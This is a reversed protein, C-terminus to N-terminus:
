PLDVECRGAEAYCLQAVANNYRVEFTGQAWFIRTPSVIIQSRVFRCERRAPDSFGQLDAQLCHAAPFAEAPFSAVRQWTAMPIRGVQLSTLNLPGRSANFVTLSRPTYFIILDANGTSAPPRTATAVSVVAQTTATPTWTPSLALTNTPTNTPVPTATLMVTATLTAASAVRPTNTVLGARPRTPVLTPRTTPPVTLTASPPASTTAIIAVAAETPTPRLFPDSAGQESVTMRSGPVIALDEAPNVLTWADLQRVISYRVWFTGSVGSPMPMAAKWPMADTLPERNADYFRVSPNSSAWKNYRSRDHSLYLTGGDPSVLAPLV